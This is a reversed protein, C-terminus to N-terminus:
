DEHGISKQDNKKSQEQLIESLKSYKDNRKEIESKEGVMAWM